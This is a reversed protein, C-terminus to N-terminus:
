VVEGEGGAMLRFEGGGRLGGPLAQQLLQTALVVCAHRTTHCDSLNNPILNLKTHCKTEYAM